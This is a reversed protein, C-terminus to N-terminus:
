RAGGTAAHGVAEPRAVRRELRVVRLTYAGAIIVMTVLFTVNLWRAVNAAADAPLRGGTVQVWPWASLLIGALLLAFADVGLRALTRRRTESPRLVDALGIAVSAALFLAIPWHLASWVPTVVLGLEPVRPVRVVLWLWLAGLDGVVEAVAYGRRNRRAAAEGDAAPGPLGAPDRPDWEGTARGRQHRREVLAFILTFLGVYAFCWVGALWLWAVPSSLAPVADRAPGSFVAYLAAFLALICAVAITVTRFYAPLMAPGILHRAPLYREAVWMPHGRRRLLALLETEELPRGLEQEREEVESRLDEELESVIDSRQGAPLWSRVARLYREIVEV